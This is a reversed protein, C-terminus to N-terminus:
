IKNISIVAKIKLTYNNLNLSIKKKIIKITSKKVKFVIVRNHMEMVLLNKELRYKNYINDM